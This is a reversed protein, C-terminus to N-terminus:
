QVAPLLKGDGYLKIDVKSGRNLKNTVMAPLVCTHALKTGEYLKLEFRSIKHELREGKIDLKLFMDVAGEATQRIGLAAGFAAIAAALKLTERRTTGRDDLM